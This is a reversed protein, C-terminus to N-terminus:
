SAAPTPIALLADSAAVEPLVYSAGTTLPACMDGANRLLATFSRLRHSQSSKMLLNCLSSQVLCTALDALRLYM